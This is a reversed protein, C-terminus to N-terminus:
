RREMLYTSLIWKARNLLQRQDEVAMLDIQGGMDNATMHQADSLMSIVYMAPDAFRLSLSEEVADRMQDVTCGYMRVERKQQDTLSLFTATTM